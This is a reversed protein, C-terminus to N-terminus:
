ITPSPHHSALETAYADFLPPLRYRDAREPWLLNAAVLTDILRGATAPDTGALMAVSGRDLQHGPGRGLLRFLRAADPPLQQYSWSVVTRLTTNGDATLDLLRLPQAAGTLEEALAALPAHPRTAARQGVACLALPLGDCCQALARAADPDREVRARGVMGALVTIAENLPLAAVEVRHAQDRTLLGLLRTRSTVVVLCGSGAPLLPRVQAASAANDLVVLVRRRDLLSRYLAAKADLERPLATAPVGFATLYSDLVSEPSAPRDPGFGHLDTYLQGHPFRDKVAHAWRLALATKGSGATGTLAIVGASATRRAHAHLRHLHSLLHARGTFGPPDPPLQRPAPPLSGRERGHRGGASRRNEEVRDRATALTGQEAPTAGLLHVLADFRDTPPLIKGAFYAAIVAHSWGVKSALQRYTLEAGERQRAERRRLDRLARALDEVTRVATVDVTRPATLARDGSRAM